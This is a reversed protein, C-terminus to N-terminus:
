VLVVDAFSDKKDNLVKEVERESTGAKKFFNTFTKNSISNWAKVLMIITSLISIVQTM